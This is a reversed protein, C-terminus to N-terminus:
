IVQLVSIVPQNNRQQSEDEQRERRQGIRPHHVCPQRNCAYVQQNKQDGYDDVQAAKAAALIMAPLPLVNVYRGAPCPEATSSRVFNLWNTPCLAGSVDGTAKRLFLSEDVLASHSKTALRLLEVLTSCVRNM